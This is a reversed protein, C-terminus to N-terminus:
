DVTGDSSSSNSDDEEGATTTSSILWAEHLQLVFELDRLVQGMTPRTMDEKALCEKIIKGYKKLSKPSYNGVIRQDVITELSRRKHLQLALETINNVESGQQFRSRGSVVEFLVVGFSFVDSKLSFAGRMIYEPAMYGYTGIVHNTVFTDDFAPGKRSIGFDSIKAVFNEDLLINATKVDRHVIGSKGWTQLYHLGRAVGICIELRQKWTLAPLDSQGFLHKGLNENGMYEYVLVLEKKEECFGIMSIVHRHKLKQLIKIETVFEALGGNRSQPHHCRKFAALTGDDLVGKYVTGFGGVGIVMSKNFNRTATRIEALKFRKKDDSDIATSGNPNLSGIAYKALEDKNKQSFLKVLEDHDKATIFGKVLRDRATSGHPNLSGGTLKPLEDQNKATTLPKGVRNTATSGNPNLTGGIFKSLEDQNKATTFQNGVKDTAISGNPDLCGVLVQSVRAVTNSIGITVNLQPRCGLPNDKMRCTSKRERRLSALSSISTKGAKLKRLTSKWEEKNSIDLLYSGLVELISPLGGSYCVIDHSLKVYEEPPEDMSFAHLSFLQLSEQHNLVQPWYINDKDVKAVNLIHEDRTIIIVRSGEGFWNVENALADVQEKSDVDDLVLLVNEKCLMRKILKKGRHYHNIDFDAKFIDKLLRKQLSALGTCQMAQKNVDSIFSHRNFNSLIHNYAVEAITTKGIGRSGCIGIIQVDKSGISLLSLLDKVRSDIGIPYKCEDLHTSSVLEDLVRKVVLEVMKAQDRNKDIVEGKLKGIERLAKRWSEVIHPEFNKEQEKFAEEFSGTQNRVQSPDVYFFIPLVLQDDSTYCEFIQALELLCWKSNAYDKSFIPISIKSRQIASLCAPGIAEGTWLEKSDIFVDIGKDKLVLNLFGTFNNRTDEGRFNLFVDYGSSRITVTTSVLDLAAM